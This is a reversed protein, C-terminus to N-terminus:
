FHYTVGFALPIFQIHDVSGSGLVSGVEMGLSLNPTIIIDLGLGCRIAFGLDGTKSSEGDFSIDEYAHMAGVGIMAYPKYKGELPLFGKGNITLALVRIDDENGEGLKSNFAMITELIAEVSFRKNLIYGGRLQFGMSNDFDIDIDGSFKDQTQKEDLNSIAYISNLSIYFSELSLSSLKTKMKIQYSSSIYIVGKKEVAKLRAIKTIKRLAKDWPINDCKLTVKGKVDHDIIFKKGSIAGLIALIDRINVDKYDLSIEQAAYQKVDSGAYAAKSILVGFITLLILLFLSKDAVRTTM